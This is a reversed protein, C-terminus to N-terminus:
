FHVYKVLAVQNQINKTPLPLVILIISKIIIWLGYITCKGITFLNDFYKQFQIFLKQELTLKKNDFNNNDNKTIKM